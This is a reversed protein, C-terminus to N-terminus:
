ATTESVNAGTGVLAEPDTIVYRRGETRVLGRAALDAMCKNVSERSAGVMRGLEEQTLPLALRVGGRGPVGHRRALEFLRRSVRTPVDHALVEQLAVSTRHLRSALLRLLESATAPSHRVVADLAEATLLEVCVRGVARAEVPSPRGLLAVEGFVDGAGLLGVVVERGTPLIASLRVAGELVVFVNM